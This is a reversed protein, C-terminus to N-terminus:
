EEQAAGDTPRPGFSLLSIGPMVHCDLLTLEKQGAHERGRLGGGGKSAGDLEPWVSLMARRDRLLHYVESGHEGFYSDGQRGGGGGIQRDLLRLDIGLIYTHTYTHIHTHIYTHTHIYM